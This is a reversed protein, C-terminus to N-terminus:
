CAPARTTSANADRSPRRAGMAEGILAGVVMAAVFVWARAPARGLNVIAPGPCFGALGWGVGFIAAGGVLRADIAAQPGLPAGVRRREIWLATGHVVIAGAMVGALSPDWNGTFDLFARLRNPDTMGSVLLGVGFLSGCGFASLAAKV